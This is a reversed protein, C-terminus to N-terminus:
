IFLAYYDNHMGYDLLLLHRPSDNSLCEFVHFLYFLTAQNETGGWGASLCLTM